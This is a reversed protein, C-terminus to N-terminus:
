VSLFDKNRFMNSKLINDVHKWSLTSYKDCFIFIGTRKWTLFPEKKTKKKMNLPHKLFHYRNSKLTNKAQFHM